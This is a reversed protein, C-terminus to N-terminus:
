CNLLFHHLRIETPLPDFIGDLLQKPVGMWIVILRLHYKLPILCGKEYTGYLGVMPVAIDHIRIDNAAVFAVNAGLRTM